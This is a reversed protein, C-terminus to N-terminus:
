KRFLVTVDDPFAYATERSLPPRDGVILVTQTGETM